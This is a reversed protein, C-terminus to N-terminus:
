DGHRFIRRNIDPWFEKVAFAGSDLVISSLWRQSCGPCKHNRPEYHSEHVELTM